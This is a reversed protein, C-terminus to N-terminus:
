EVTDGPEEDFTGDPGCVFQDDDDGDHDGDGPDDDGFGAVPTPADHRMIWDRIGPPVTGSELSRKADASLDLNSLALGRAVSLASRMAAAAQHHRDISLGHWWRQLAADDGPTVPPDFTLAFASMEMAEVKLDGHESETM